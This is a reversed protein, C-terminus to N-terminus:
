ENSKPDREVSNRSQKKNETSFTDNDTQIKSPKFHISWMTALDAQTTKTFVFLLFVFWCVFLFYKGRQAGKRLKPHDLFARDFLLKSQSVAVTRWSKLFM